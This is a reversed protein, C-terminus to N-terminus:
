RRDKLGTRLRPPCSLWPGVCQGCSSRTSTRPTEPALQRGLEDQLADLGCNRDFRSAVDRRGRRAMERAAGPHALLARVAEAVAAPDEPPVLLGTDGQRVIEPIGGVASAVVPRELALAEMLTLGLPEERSCSLLIDSDMLHEGIHDSPGV